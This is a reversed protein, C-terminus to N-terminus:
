EGTKMLDARIAEMLFDDIMRRSIKASEQEVVQAAQAEVEDNDRIIKELDELEVQERELSAILEDIHKLTLQEANELLAVKIEDALISEALLTGLKQLKTTLTQEM